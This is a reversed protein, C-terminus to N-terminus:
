QLWNWVKQWFTRGAEASDTVQEDQDVITIVEEGPKILGFKERIEAEAGGSTKLWDIEKSLNSERAKLNKLDSSVKDLNDKTYQQKQYVSWVGNLILLLILLLIFITIRSYVVRRIKRKQQFELM